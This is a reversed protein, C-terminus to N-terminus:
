IESTGGGGGGGYNLLLWVLFIFLFNDISSYILNSVMIFFAPSALFAAIVWVVPILKKMNGLTCM